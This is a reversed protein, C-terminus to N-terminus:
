RMELHRIDGHVEQGGKGDDVLKELHRIDGHVTLEQQWSQMLKELHRIDGHVGDYIESRKM